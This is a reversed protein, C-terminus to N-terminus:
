RRATAAARKPAPEQVPTAVEAKKAPARPCGFKLEELVAEWKKAPKAWSLDQNIAAHVMAEWQGSKHAAAARVVTAAVADVDGQTLEDLDMHGMHFGTIGEKVTDVLGGTSSVLPPTGYKATCTHLRRM